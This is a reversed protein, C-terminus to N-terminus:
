RTPASPGAGPGAPDAGPAASHGAENKVLGEAAPLGSGPIGNERSRLVELGDCIVQLSRQREGSPLSPLVDLRDLLSQYANQMGLHWRWRAGFDLARALAIVFTALAAAIRAWTTYEVPLVTAAGTAALAVATGGNHLFSDTRPSHQRVARELKPRLTDIARAASDDMESTDLTAM